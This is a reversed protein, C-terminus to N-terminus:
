LRPDSGAFPLIQISWFETTFLDGPISSKLKAFTKFDVGSTGRIKKSGQILLVANRMSSFAGDHKNMLTIKQMKMKGKLINYESLKSNLESEHEQM